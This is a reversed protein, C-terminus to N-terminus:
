NNLYKKNDPVYNYDVMEKKGLAIVPVPLLCFYKIIKGM